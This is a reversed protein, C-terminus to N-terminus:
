TRFAAQQSTMRQQVVVILAELYGEANAWQPDEPVIVSPLTNALMGSGGGVAVLGLVQEMQSDLKTILRQVVAKAVQIQHHRRRETIDIENRRVIITNSSEVQAPSIPLQYEASLSEALGSAVAYMGIEISGAAMPDFDLIGDPRKVVLIFETTRAGIDVVLYPGPPRHELVPGAAAVGQPLVLVSEFWFRVPDRNPLLVTAQYGQLAEQFAEHQSGWWSLPLGASLHVPGSARLHAAGVAILRLTDADAAKDRSWLPTAYRAAVEGILYPIEDIYTLAPRGLNGLDVHAPAPCILSPFLAKIGGRGLAKVYGHGADIAMLQM